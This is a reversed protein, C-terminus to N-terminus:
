GRYQCPVIVTSSKDGDENASHGSTYGASSLARTQLFPSRSIPRQPYLLSDTPAGEKTPASTALDGVVFRSFEANASSRAKQHAPLRFCVTTGPEEHPKVWLAGRHAEVISRCISLGMGMRNPKTTFFLEFARAPDTMGIGSDRTEVVAADAGDRYARVLLRKPRDLVAEMADFANVVLNRLLQQLQVRDAVVDPLDADLERELVVGRKSAEGALLRFVEGVITELSVPARLAGGKIFLRFAYLQSDL